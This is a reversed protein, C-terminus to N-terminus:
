FSVNISFTCARIFSAVLFDRGESIGSSSMLTSIKGPEKRTTTVIKGVSSAEIPEISEMTCPSCTDADVMALLMADATDATGPM